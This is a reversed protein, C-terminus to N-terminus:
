RRCPSSILHSDRAGPDEPRRAREVGLHGAYDRRRWLPARRGSGWALDGRDTRRAQHRPAVDAGSHRRRRRQRRADRGRRIQDFDHDSADLRDAVAHRDGDGAHRRRGLRARDKPHLAPKHRYRWLGRRPRRAHARGLTRATDDIQRRRHNDCDDYYRSRCAIRSAKTVDSPAEAKYCVFPRRTSVQVTWVQLLLARHMPSLNAPIAFM